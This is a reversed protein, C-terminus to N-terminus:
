TVRGRSKSSEPEYSSSTGNDDNIVFAMSGHLRACRQRATADNRRTRPISEFTSGAHQDTATNNRAYVRAYSLTNSADQTRMSVAGASSALCIVVVDYHTARRTHARRDRGFVAPWSGQRCHRGHYSRLNGTWGRALVKRRRNKHM